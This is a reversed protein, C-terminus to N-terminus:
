RDDISGQTYNTSWQVSAIFNDVAGSGEQCGCGVQGPFQVKAWEGEASQEQDKPPSPLTFSNLLGILHSLDRVTIHKKNLM